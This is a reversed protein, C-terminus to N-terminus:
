IGKHAKVKDKGKTLARQPGHWRLVMMTIDDSQPAQKVFKRLDDCVKEILEQSTIKEKPQSNIIDLLREEGYLNKNIDMAETVGDTYLFLLDKPKLQLSLTKYIIGEMVGVVPGSLDTLFQTSASSPIYVTPNHGANAYEMYGTKINLIGAFLTVFMNNPNNQSLEENIRSVIDGIKGGSMATNKLLTMTMAMFFAAPVGKGSVDGVAFCLHDDDIFFYHFLDGGVEKAPRLYAHFDLQSFSPHPESPPLIGMQIERAIRLESELREQEATMKVLTQVNEVLASHMELFSATLVGIEDRRKIDEKFNSYVDLGGELFNHDALKSTFYTLKKLPNIARTILVVILLLTSLFVFLVIISQFKVLRSGPAYIEQTPIVSGIYWKLPRFYTTSIHYQVNNINSSFHKTSYNNQLQIQTLIQPKIYKDFNTTKNTPYITRNDKSDIIFLYGTNAIHIKNISNQIINIMKQKKNNIEKKIEEIDLFTSVIFHNNYSKIYGVIMRNHFNFIIFEGVDSKATQRFIDKLSRGKIDNLRLIQSYNFNKNSSYWFHLKNLIITFINYNTILKYKSICNAISSRNPNQHLTQIIDENMFKLLKKTYMIINIKSALLNQYMDNINLKVLYQINNVQQKNLKFMAKGTMNSTLYIISFAMICFLCALPLVIKWKLSIIKNKM